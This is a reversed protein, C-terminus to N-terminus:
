KETARKPEPQPPMGFYYEYWRNEQRTLPQGPLGPPQLGATWDALKRALQRATDTNAAIVNRGEHQDSELDFLFEAGNGLKLYKWKGARVASQNWFRWFLAEHPAGTKRGSLFPVLDVGDLRGDHALGAAAVATAALDLSSVPHIYVKGAPLVGKWRMVFPVRVGGDSLMGKEGVWPDNLSGDWDASVLNVPKRDEHHLQVPAGNDSTYAILTNEEVGHERLADTIRGVGDDIASIMALAHRRREPMEGPFRDLYKKTAELPVHPGFYCLYLFFPQDHHRKIFAVAADTQVELRYAGRTTIREGQKSLSRGDRDYTAFYTTTEGTFCEDFGQALPSYARRAEEPIAVRGRDAKAGPMNAKIWRTSLPNPDLHWKGVQGSVYGAARLREALTVEELPLPCDPITDFGFRQQYRGTILGARSPSCQPATIYGASLRVGERALRDIHPTKVDAKVGQTSLDAYGQDDALIVIVNPKAAAAVEVAVAAASCLLSTVFVLARTFVNM